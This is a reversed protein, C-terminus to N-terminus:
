LRHFHLMKQARRLVPDYFLEIKLDAFLSEFAVLKDCELGCIGLGQRTVNIGHIGLYLPAGPHLGVLFHRCIRRLCNTSKWSVNLFTGYAQRTRPWAQGRQM